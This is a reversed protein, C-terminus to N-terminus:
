EAKNSVASEKSRKPVNMLCQVRCENMRFIIRNEGSEIIEQRNLLAYLRLGLAEKLVPIGGNEPLRCITKIREAELAAFREWAATDM